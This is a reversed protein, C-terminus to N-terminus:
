VEKPAILSFDGNPQSMANLLGNIDDCFVFEDEMRFFQVLDRKRNRYFSVVTGPALLNRDKLRSTLLEASNKPLNLDRVLDNLDAQTFLQPIGGSRGPANFDEDIDKTDETPVFDNESDSIELAKFVPVPLENSHPIPQLASPLNPYQISSRTKSTLGSVNVSCFYCDDSHNKPERWVMPVGFTFHKKGKTWLSLISVCSACFRHPAWPKDKDGLKVGFYVHHAKQIFDTIKRREKPTTFCECICCFIM